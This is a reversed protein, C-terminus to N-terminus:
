AASESDSAQKSVSLVTVLLLNLMGRRAAGQAHRSHRMARFLRKEEEGDHHLLRRARATPSPHRWNPESCVTLECALIEARIFLLKFNRKTQLQDPALGWTTPSAMDDCPGSHAM